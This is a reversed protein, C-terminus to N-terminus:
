VILIICLSAHIFLPYVSKLLVAGPIIAHKKEILLHVSFWFLISYQNETAVIESERSKCYLLLCHSAFWLFVYSM